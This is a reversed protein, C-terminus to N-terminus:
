DYWLEEGDIDFYNGNGDTSRVKLWNKDGNWALKGLCDKRAYGVLYDRMIKMEDRVGIIEGNSDLKNPDYDSEHKYHLRMQIVKDANCGSEFGRDDHNDVVYHLGATTADVNTEGFKAYALDLNVRSKKHNLVLYHGHIHYSWMNSTREYQDDYFRAKRTEGPETVTCEMVNIGVFQNHWINKDRLLNQSIYVRRAKAIAVIEDQELPRNSKVIPFTFTWLVSELDLSRKIALLKKCAKRSRARYSNLTACDNCRVPFIRDYGDTSPSPCWRCTSGARCDIRKLFEFHSESMPEWRKNTEGNTHLFSMDGEHIPGYEWGIVKKEQSLYRHQALTTSAVEAWRPMVVEPQTIKM